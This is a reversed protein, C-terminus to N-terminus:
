NDIPSVLPGGSTTGLVAADGPFDVPFALALGGDWSRFGLHQPHARAM